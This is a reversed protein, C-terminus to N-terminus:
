EEGADKAPASTGPGDPLKKLAERARTAAPSRPFENIVKRYQQRAEDFMDVRAYNDGMQCWREAQQEERWKAIRATIKPDSNLRELAAKAAAGAATKPSSDLVQRYVRLAGVFDGTLELEAAEDNKLLGRANEIARTVMQKTNIDGRLRGIDTDCAVVLDHEPGEQKRTTFRVHVEAVINCAEQYKRDRYLGRAEDLWSKAQELLKEHLTRGQDHMPSSEDTVAMVFKALTEARGYEKKAMFEAARKLKDALATEDAGIPPTRRLQDKVRAELDDMPHGKWAIIGRPDIIFVYPFSAVEFLAPVGPGYWVVRAGLEGSKTVGEAKEKKEDTCALVVVGQSGYTEGIKAVIPMAEVSEPNVTRFFFFLVIRGRLEEIQLNPDDAPKQDQRKYQIEPAPLGVKQGLAPIVFGGAVVILTLMRM